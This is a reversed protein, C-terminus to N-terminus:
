FHALDINAGLADALVGLAGPLPLGAQLSITVYGGSRSFTYYETNNPVIVQASAGNCQCTYKLSFTRKWLYTAGAAGAGAGGPALTTVVDKPASGVYEWPSVDSREGTPTCPVEAPM